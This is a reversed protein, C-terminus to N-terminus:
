YENGRLCKQIYISRHLKAIVNRRIKTKEPPKGAEIKRAAEACSQGSIIESRVRARWSAGLTYCAALLIRLLTPWKYTSRENTKM